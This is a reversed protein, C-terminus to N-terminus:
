PLIGAFGATPAARSRGCSGGCRAARRTATRRGARRCPRTGGRSRRASSCSRRLRAFGLREIEQHLDGGVAGGAAEVLGEDDVLLDGRGGAAAIGARRQVVAGDAEVGDRGVADLRSSPRPWADVAHEGLDAVVADRGGLELAGLRAVDGVVDVVVVVLRREGAAVAPAEATPRVTCCISPQGSAMELTVSSSM